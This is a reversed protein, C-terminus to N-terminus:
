LLAFSHGSVHEKERGVGGGLAIPRFQGRDGEVEAVKVSV